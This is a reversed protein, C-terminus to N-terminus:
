FRQAGALLPADNPQIKQVDSNGISRGRQGLQGPRVQSGFRVQNTRVPLRALVPMMEVANMRILLEDEVILILARKAVSIM